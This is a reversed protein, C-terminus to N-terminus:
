GILKTNWDIKESLLKHIIILGMSTLYFPELKITPWGDEGRFFDLFFSSRDFDLFSKCVFDLGERSLQVGYVPLNKRGITFM